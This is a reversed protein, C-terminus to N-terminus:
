GKYQFFNIQLDRSWFLFATLFISANQLKCLCSFLVSQLIDIWAFPTSGSLDKGSIGIEIPNRSNRDRLCTRKPLQEQLLRLRGELEVGSVVARLRHAPVRQIERFM